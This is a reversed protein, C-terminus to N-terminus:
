ERQPLQMSQHTRLMRASTASRPTNAGSGAQQMQLQQMAAMPLPPVPPHGLGQGLGLQQPLASSGMLM